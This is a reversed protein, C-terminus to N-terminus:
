HILISDGIGFLLNFNISQTYFYNKKGARTSLSDINGRLAKWHARVSITALSQYDSFWFACYCYIQRNFDIFRSGIPLNNVKWHYLIHVICLQFSSPKCKFLIQWIKMKYCLMNHMFLTAIITDSRWLSFRLSCM